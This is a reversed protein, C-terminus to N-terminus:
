LIRWLKELDQKTHGKVEDCYFLGNHKVWRHQNTSGRLKTPDSELKDQEFLGDTIVDALSLCRAVVPDAGALTIGHLDFFNYGTWVWIDKTSGFKERFSSMLFCVKARNKPAFPEGGLISLGSIHPQSCAELVEEMESHTFPKGSQYSWADRNFCGKCAFSCGSVFLSVRLGDGNNMDSKNIKMYNM